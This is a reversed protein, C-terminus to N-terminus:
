VYVCCQEYIFLASEPAFGRAGFSVKWGWNGEGSLGRGLWASPQLARAATRVSPVPGHMEGVVRWCGASRRWRGVRQAVGDGSRRAPVEGAASAAWRSAPSPHWGGRGHRGARGGTLTTQSLM